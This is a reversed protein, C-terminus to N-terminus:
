EYREGQSFLINIPLNSDTAESIKIVAHFPIKKVNGSAYRQIASKSIGTMNELQKLTLGSDNIAKKILDSETKREAETEREKVM